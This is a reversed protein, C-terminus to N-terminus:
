QSDFLHDLDDGMQAWAFLQSFEQHTLLAASFETEIQTRQLGIGTVVLHTKPTGSWQGAEGVTISEGYANLAGVMNPRTPLWFCGRVCLGDRCFRKISEIFREPHFPRNSSLDLTWVGTNSPGGWAETSTPHIREIAQDVDHVSEFLMQDGVLSFSPLMLTAHPRSHEALELGRPDDGLAVIVDSYGLNMSTIEGVCREDGPFLALGAEEVSGRHLLNHELESLECATIVSSVTWELNEVQDAFRPVVSAADVSSPLTVIVKKPQMERLFPVVAERLSCTICSHALPVTFSQSTGAEIYNLYAADADLDVQLTPALDSLALMGVSRLLPNHVAFVSILVSVETVFVMQHSHTEITDHAAHAVVTLDSPFSGLEPFSNRM